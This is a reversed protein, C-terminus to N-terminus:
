YSELAGTIKLIKETDFLKSERNPSRMDQQVKELQSRISQMKSNIGMFEQLNLNKLGQKVRKM